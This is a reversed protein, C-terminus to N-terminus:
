IPQRDLSGSLRFDLIEARLGEAQEELLTSRSIVIGKSITKYGQFQALNKNTKRKKPDLRDEM